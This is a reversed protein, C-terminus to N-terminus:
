AGSVLRRFAPLNERRGAIVLRDGSQLVETGSPEHITAKGRLISMITMGTVSSVALDKLSRGIGPSGPNLAVWDIALDEIVDEVQRVTPPAFRDDSLIQGVIRAKHDDLSVSSPEERGPAVIYVDRRGSHHFVITIAGGDNGEVTYRRGIGPLEDERVDRHM